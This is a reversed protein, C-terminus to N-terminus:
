KNKKAKRPSLFPASVVPASVVPPTIALPAGVVAAVPAAAAPLPPPAAAAAASPSSAAADDDKDGDVESDHFENAVQSPDLMDPGTAYQIESDIWDNLNAQVRSFLQIQNIGKLIIKYEKIVDQKFHPPIFQNRNPNQNSNQFPNQNQYPNQFPNVPIYREQKGYISQELERRLTDDQM